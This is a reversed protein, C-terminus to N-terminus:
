GVPLEDRLPPKVPQRDEDKSPATEEDTQKVPPASRLPVFSPQGLRERLTSERLELERFVDTFNGTADPRTRELELSAGDLTLMAQERNGRKLQTEARELLTRTETLSADVKARELLPKLSAFDTTSSTTARAVRRREVPVATRVSEGADRAQAKTAQAVLASDAEQSTAAALAAAAIVMDVM